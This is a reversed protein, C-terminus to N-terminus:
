EVNSKLFEAFESTSSEYFLRLIREVEAVNKDIFVRFTNIKFFPGFFRRRRSTSASICWAGEDFKSISLSSENFEGTQFILLKQSSEEEKNEWQFSKYLCIAEEMTPKAPINQEAEEDYYGCYVLNM